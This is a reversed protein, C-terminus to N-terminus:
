QVNAPQPPAATTPAAGPSSLPMRRRQQEQDEPPPAAPIAAPAELGPGTGGPAIAGPLPAPAVPPAPEPPTAITEEEIFADPGPSEFVEGVPAPAPGRAGKEGSACGAPGAALLAVLLLAMAAGALRNMPVLRRRPAAPRIM